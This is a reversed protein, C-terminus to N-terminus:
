LDDLDQQDLVNLDEAVLIEILRLKEQFTIVETLHEEILRNIAERDEPSANKEALEWMAIFQMGLLGIHQNLADVYEAGPSLETEM